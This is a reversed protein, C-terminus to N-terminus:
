RTAGTKGNRDDVIVEVAFEVGWRPSGNEHWEHAAASDCKWVAVDGPANSALTLRVTGACDDVPCDLRAALAAPLYEMPIEGAM